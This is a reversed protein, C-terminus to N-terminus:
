ITPFRNEGIILIRHVKSPNIPPINIERRRDSSEVYVHYNHYHINLKCKKCLLKKSITNTLKKISRSFIVSRSPALLYSTDRVSVTHVTHLYFLNMRAVLLLRLATFTLPIIGIDSIRYM